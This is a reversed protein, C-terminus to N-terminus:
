KKQESEDKVMVVPLGAMAAFAILLSPDPSRTTVIWTATLAILGTLGVTFLIINRLLKWDRYWKERDNNV